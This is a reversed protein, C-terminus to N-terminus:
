SSRLTTWRRRGGLVAAGWAPFLWALPVTPALPETPEDTPPPETPPPPEDNFTFRCEAIPADVGLSGSCAGSSSKVYGGLNSQTVTYTLNFGVVVVVGVESGSFSSPTANAGSVTVNVDSAKAGGGDNNIVDTIVRVRPRDNRTITCTVTTGAALGGGGDARFCDASDVRGAYGDVSADDIVRYGKGAPISVATGTASGPFNNPSAGSGGEGTLVMDWDAASASGGSNNIVVMKVIVTARNPGTPGATPTPKTTPVPTPRPTQGPRLTPTPVPELTPGADTPPVGTGPVGSPSAMPPLTVLHPTQLPGLTPPVVSSIAAASGSPANTASATLPGDPLVLRVTVLGIVALGLLLLSERAGKRRSGKRRLDRVERVPREVPALPAGGGRVDIRREVEEPTLEPVDDFGKPRPPQRPRRPLRPGTM